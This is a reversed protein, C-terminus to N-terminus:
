EAKRGIVREVIGLRRREVFEITFGAAVLAEQPERLLHDGGSRMALPELLHEVARVLPNPSRVHEVLIFRGGPRLVRWAERVAARDDPISCLSITCIVCDFREDPFELRQVDGERLDAELGLEAARKRAIALMRPSLDVGTLRVGAPYFPLNKGTGVAIELVDDGAQGCAWERGDQLLRSSRTPGEAYRAASRDWYARVRATEPDLAEPGPLAEGGM